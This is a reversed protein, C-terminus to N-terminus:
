HKKDPPEAQQLWQWAGQRQYEAWAEYAAKRAAPAQPALSGGTAAYRAALLAQRALLGQHQAQHLQVNVTALERGLGEQLAVQHAHDIKALAEAYYKGAQYRRNWFLLLAVEAGLVFCGAGIALAYVWSM